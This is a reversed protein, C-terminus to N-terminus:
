NNYLIVSSVTIPHKQSVELSPEQKDILTMKGVQLSGPVNGEMLSENIIGTVLTIMTPSTGKGMASSVNYVGAARDLKLSRIVERVEGENTPYCVEKEYAFEERDKPIQREYNTASKVLVEKVLQEGRTTFIKLKMGLSMKALETVVLNKLENFETVFRDDPAKLATFLGKNKTVRKALRWFWDGTYSDKLRQNKALKDQIVMRQKRIEDGLDANETVATVLLTQDCEDLVVGNLM